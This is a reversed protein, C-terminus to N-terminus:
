PKDLQADCEALRDSVDYRTIMSYSAIGEARLIFLALDAMGDESIEWGGAARAVAMADDAYLILQDCSMAQMFRWGANFDQAPAPTSAPAATATPTLAPTPTAPEGCGSLLSGILLISILICKAKRPM